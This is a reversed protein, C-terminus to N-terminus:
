KGERIREILKARRDVTMEHSEDFKSYILSSCLETLAARILRSVSVDDGVLEQITELRYLQDGSFWLMKKSGQRKM